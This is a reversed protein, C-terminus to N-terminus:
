DFVDSAIRQSAVNAFWEDVDREVETKDRNQEGLGLKDEMLIWRAAEGVAKDFVRSGCVYVRAGDKWLQRLLDADHKMRENVYKCGESKEPEKSFTYRIDVVDDKVWQDMEEAYLRDMTQSRCGLFLVAKALKREPNASMQVARQQLFGRFPAVGTGAAFM